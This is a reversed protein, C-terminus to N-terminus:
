ALGLIMAMTVAQRDEPDIPSSTTVTGNDAISIEPLVEPTAAKNDEDTPNVPVDDVTGQDEFDDAVPTAEVEESKNETAPVEEVTEVVIEDAPAEEIAVPALEESETAPTDAAPAAVKETAAGKSAGAAKRAM